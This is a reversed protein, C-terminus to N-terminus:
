KTESSQHPYYITLKNKRPSHNTQAFYRDPRCSDKIEIPVGYIKYGNRIRPMCTSLDFGELETRTVRVISSHPPASRALQFACPALYVGATTEIYEIHGNWRSCWYVSFGMNVLLHCQVIISWNAIAILGYGPLFMLRTKIPHRNSLAYLLYSYAYLQHMYDQNTYHM